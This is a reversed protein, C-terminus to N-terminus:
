LDTGNNRITEGYWYASDKMTRKQTQYDVHVLGFRQKYGEAWEFNDTLSWQFYGLVPVGEAIAQKLGGLYRRLFDIRQPDHVKGDLHVWDMCTLGNETIAIPKQYREYFFKATWRLADPTVPWYNLTHRSGPLPLVAEPKGDPGKRITVGQYVNTAFLDMPASITKMEAETYKPVASGYVKLGDEPYHGFIVPDVWWTNNWLNTSTISFMSQRAAEIDEPSETQPISTMGCPVWTVSAPKKAHSRITQVAMGHALLVHHAAQLVDPLDLKLGPAHEGTQYGLAVFCQPENFTMWHTVRDSLKEIVARTYDAFYRPMEPNLWGGRLQLAYPLDWHYLTVWPQIGAALLEDVLKEYFALGKQNVAGTGEPLVRPWSISFRYGKLGIEKMLAVDERFRHYHDCAVEGTNGAYVAGPKRCFTDWISLGKGDEYAAGEVQYSASAAGWVFDAPFVSQTPKNM